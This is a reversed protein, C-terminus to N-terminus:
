VYVSVPGEVMRRRKVQLMSAETVHDESELGAVAETKGCKFAVEAARQGDM